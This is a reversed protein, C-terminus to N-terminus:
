PKTPKPPTTRGGRKQGAHASRDRFDSRSLRERHLAALNTEHEIIQRSLDDDSLPPDERLETSEVKPDRRRAGVRPKNGYSDRVEKLKIEVLERIIEHDLRDAVKSAVSSESEDRKNREQEPGGRGDRKNWWKRLAQVLVVGLTGGVLLGIVAGIIEMKAGLLAGCASWLIVLYWEHRQLKM